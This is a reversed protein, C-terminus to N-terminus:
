RYVRAQGASHRPNGRLWARYHDPTTLTGFELDYGRAIDKSISSRSMQFFEALGCATLMTNEDAQIEKGRHTVTRIM